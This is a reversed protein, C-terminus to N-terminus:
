FGFVLLKNLARLVKIEDSSNVMLYKSIEKVQEIETGDSDVKIRKHESVEDDEDESSLGDLDELSLLASEGPNEKGIYGTCNDEGCHCIQAKSRNIFFYGYREFKYDFTLEEFAAIDELAFIGMRMQNGVVWKQLNCNPKCSHNM